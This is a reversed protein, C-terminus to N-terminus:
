EEDSKKLFERPLRKSSAAVFLGGEGRGWFDSRVTCGLKKVETANCYLLLLWVEVAFLRLSTTSLTFKNSTQLFNRENCFVEIINSRRAPSVKNQERDKPNDSSYIM